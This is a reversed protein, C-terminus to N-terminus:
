APPVDGGGRARRGRGEGGDDVRPGGRRTTPQGCVCGCNYANDRITEAPFAQFGCGGTGEVLLPPGLIGLIIWFLKRYTMTGGNPQPELRRAQDRVFLVPGRIM